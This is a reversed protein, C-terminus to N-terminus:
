DYNAQIRQNTNVTNSNGVVFLRLIHDGSASGDETGDSYRDQHLTIDNSNGDVMLEILNIGVTTSAGQRIDYTNNDGWMQAQQQDIGRLQNDGSAQLISITNSDGVQDIYIGNDYYSDRRVGAASKATSQTSTPGTSAGTTTTTTPSSTGSGSITGEVTSAVIGDIIDELATENVSTM